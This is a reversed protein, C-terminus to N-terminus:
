QRKRRESLTGRCNPERIDALEEAKQKWESYSDAKMLSAVDDPRRALEVTEIKPSRESHEIDWRRMDGKLSEEELVGSFQFSERSPKLKLGPLVDCGTTLKTTFSLAGTRPNYKVDDLVAVPADENSGAFVFFLGAMSSDVRWLDVRYGYAHEGDTSRVNSFEGIARIRRFRGQASCLCALAIAAIAALWVRRLRRAFGGAGSSALSRM